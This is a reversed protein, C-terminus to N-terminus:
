IGKGLFVTALSVDFYVLASRSLLLAWGFVELLLAPTRPEIGGHWVGSSWSEVLKSANILVLAAAFLLLSVRVDARQLLEKSIMSLVVILSVWLKFRIM